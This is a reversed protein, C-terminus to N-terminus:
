LKRLSSMGSFANSHVTFIGNHGLRLEQIYAANAFDGSKIEFFMNREFSRLCLLWM